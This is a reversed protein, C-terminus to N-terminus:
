VRQGEGVLDVVGDGDDECDGVGEEGDRIGQPCPGITTASSSSFLHSEILM